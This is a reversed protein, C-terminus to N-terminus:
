QGEPNSHMEVLPSVPRMSSWGGTNEAAQMLKAVARARPHAGRRSESELPELDHGFMLRSTTV